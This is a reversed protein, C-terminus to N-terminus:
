EKKRRGPGHGGRAPHDAATHRPLPRPKQVAPEAFRHAIAAKVARTIEELDYPRGVLELVTERTGVVEQLRQANASTVVFTRGQMSALHRVHQFFRWHADYPPAIDYVIVHPDHQELFTTLDILGRRLDAIQASFVIFGAQELSVRLLEVVDTNTDLVAVIASEQWV